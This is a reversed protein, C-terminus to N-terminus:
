TPNPSSSSKVTIEKVSLLKVLYCNHIISEQPNAKIHYSSKVYLWLLEIENKYFDEFIYMDCWCYAMVEYEYM